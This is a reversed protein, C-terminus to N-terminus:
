GLLWQRFPPQWLDGDGLEAADAQDRADQSTDEVESKHGGSEARLPFSRPVWRAAPPGRVFFAMRELVDTNGRLAPTGRFFIDLLVLQQRRQGLARANAAAASESGSLTGGSESESDSLTGDSDWGDSDYESGYQFIEWEPEEPAAELVPAPAAERVPAALAPGCAVAAALASGCSLAELQPLQGRLADALAMCELGRVEGVNLERLAPWARDRLLAALCMMVSSTHTARDLPHGVVHLVALESLRALSRPLAQLWRCHRVEFRRLALDGLADPLFEVDLDELVLTELGVFCAVPAALDRLLPMTKIKLERVSVCAAGAGVVEFETDVVCLRKLQRCAALAPLTKDQSDCHTVTLTVLAGLREVGGLGLPTRDVQARCTLKARCALVCARLCCCAGGVTLVRLRQARDVFGAEIGRMAECMIVELVRLGPSGLNAKLAELPVQQLRVRWLASCDALDSVIVVPVDCLVLEMLLRLVSLQPLSHMASMHEFCVHEADAAVTLVVGSGGSVVAIGSGDAAALSLRSVEMDGSALAARRIGQVGAGFYLNTGDIYPNGTPQQM